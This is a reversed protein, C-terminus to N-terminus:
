YNRTKFTRIDRVLKYEECLYGNKRPIIMDEQFDSSNSAHKGGNLVNMMKLPISNPHNHPVDNIHEYLLVQPANAAAHACALSVALIVIARLRAKILLEM